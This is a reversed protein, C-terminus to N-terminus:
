RARGGNPTFLGLRIASEVASGATQGLGCISADRMAQNVDALLATERERSGLV